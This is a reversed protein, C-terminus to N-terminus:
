MNKSKADNQMNQGGTGRFFSSAWQRLSGVSRGFSWPRNHLETQQAGWSDWNITSSPQNQNIYIWHNGEPLHKYM